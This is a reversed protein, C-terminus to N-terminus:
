VETEVRMGKEHTDGRKRATGAGEEMGGDDGDESGRPLEGRAEMRRKLADMQPLLEPIRFPKTVVMDMGAQMAIAIQESRANATVAIVPVHRRFFGEAQMARIRKVCALGDMVPMELDMLCVSIDLIAPQDSSSPETAFTSPASTSSGSNASSASSTASPLPCGSSQSHPSSAAASPARPMKISDNSSIPAISSFTSRGLISLAKLGNDAVYTTCGARRLQQSLVKQNILNDEVILVKLDSYRDKSNAETIRAPAINEMDVRSYHWAPDSPVTLPMFDGCDSPDLQKRKQSSLRRLPPTRLADTPSPPANDSSESTCRRAKIYFTFTSGKGAQSAVGIQGGQLETLERSIFLGLGSGGYEGYTKPSAQSFRHFLLKMEAESLGKGTDEVTLQLYIDEGSGWEDSFVHEPRSPRRPIYALNDHGTSPKKYSTSLFISIVRKDRDRTFKIANTLLNILVQLLRSPDLRLTDISMDDHSQHVSFHLKINASNLEAEYMKIAREVLAVPQIIEPSIVLLSSDLKSLTLIDDVIRKQHQACLVVTQASDVITAQAEADLVILARPKSPHKNGLKFGLANLIGDASQLIASLPNRMEHSTMDIFNESQRKTELADELRQAQLQQNWKQHSIDTLWGLIRQPENADNYTLFANALLWSCGMQDSGDHPNPSQWPRKVRFEFPQISQGQGLKQWQEEVYSRDEPIVTSSRTQSESGFDERRLGSLDCYAQNMWRPQGNVEFVVCGIPASEALATFTAEAYQAEQTRRELDRSFKDHRSNNEEIIERSRRQEEPLFISAVAKVLRDNLLRIFIQYDEDYPRRPNLGMILFGRISTGSLPPIPLAIATTSPEGFGRGEVVLNSLHEPLTGDKARLIAPQASTWARRFPVSYGAGGETLPFSSIAAPHDKGIGITGELFCSKLKPPNYEDPQPGIRLGDEDVSYLLTYTVDQSSSELGSLILGWLEQIGKASGAKEGLCILTNIRREGIVQTTCEVFEDLAGIANGDSDIIPLITFNWYTEELGLSKNRNITLHLDQVRTAKGQQMALKVLSKIPKWLESFVQAPGHGLADPHKQGILALCAENYLLCMSHGWVLLRPNPNSLITVLTQRLLDSWTEIPGLPTSAWDHNLFFRSYPSLEEPPEKLWDLCRRSPSLPPSLSGPTCDPKDHEEIDERTSQSDVEDLGTKERLAEASMGPFAINSQHELANAGDYSRDRKTAHRSEDDIAIAYVIRWKNRLLFSTWQRGGFSIRSAVGTRDAREASADFRSAWVDFRSEIDQTSDALSLRGVFDRLAKNQYTLESAQSGNHADLIFTPRNDHDLFAALLDFGDSATDECDSPSM